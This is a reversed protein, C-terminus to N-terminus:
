LLEKKLQFHMGDPTKFNGGWDFWTDFCAVLEPSMKPKVRFPNDKANIDVALAWSHISWSMGGRTTRVNYCGDWTKVQEKLGRLLILNFAHMLYEPLKKHCYIKSPICPIAQWYEEPVRWVHLFKRVTVSNPDGYLEICDNATLM